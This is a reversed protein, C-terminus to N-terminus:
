WRRPEAIPPTRAGSSQRQPAPAAQWVAPDDAAEFHLLRRGAAKHLVLETCGEAGASQQHVNYPGEFWYALDGPELHHDQVLALEAGGPAAGEDLRRWSTYRDSGSLLCLVGWGQHSHVPTVHEPGFRPLQLLFRGEPDTYLPGSHAESDPDGLPELERALRQLLPGLAWVAETTEGQADLIRRVDVCFEDISYRDNLEFPAWSESPM